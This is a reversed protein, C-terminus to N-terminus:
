NLAGHQNPRNQVSVPRLTGSSKRKITLLVKSLSNCYEVVTQPDKGIVSEDGVHTIQDGVQLISSCAGGEM